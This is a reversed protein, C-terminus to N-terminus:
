RAEDYWPEPADEQFRRADARIAEELALAAEQAIRMALQQSSTLATALLSALHTSIAKKVYGPLNTPDETRYVYVIYVIESDTLITNSEPRYPSGDTEVSVLNILDLPLPYSYLFGYAPATLSKELQMRKAFSWKRAALVSEIAEGIFTNVYQTLGDDGTLSAIRGKGIRGLARNAIELWSNGYEIAM